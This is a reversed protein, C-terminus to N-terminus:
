LKTLKVILSFRFRTVVSRQRPVRGPLREHRRELGRASQIESPREESDPIDSADPPNAVHSPRRAIIILPLDDAENNRDLTECFGRLQEILSRRM